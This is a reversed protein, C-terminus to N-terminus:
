APEIELECTSSCGDGDDDNGDDCQEGPEVAGNGCCCLHEIECTASCGDMGHDNGDDCAEGPDVVGDGCAAVHADPEADPEADPVVPEADADPAPEADPVPEPAPSADPQDEPALEVTPPLALAPDDDNETVGCGWMPVAIVMAWVANFKM